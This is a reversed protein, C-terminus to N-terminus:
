APDPRTPSVVPMLGIFMAAVTMFKPGARRAAGQVIAETLGGPDHLRGGGSAASWALDLYLLMFVATQADVGVLAILGTWVAPQLSIRRFVFDVCRGRMLVSGRAACHRDRRGFAYSGTHPRLRPARDVAAGM